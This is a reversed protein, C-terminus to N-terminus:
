GNESYLADFEQELLAWDILASLLYLEHNRNLFNELRNRFMDLQFTADQKKPRM